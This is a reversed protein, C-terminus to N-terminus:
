GSINKLFKGRKLAKDAITGYSSGAQHESVFAEREQVSTRRAM